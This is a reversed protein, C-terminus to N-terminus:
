RGEWGSCLPVWSINKICQGAICSEDSGCEDSARKILDEANAAGEAAIAAGIASAELSDSSGVASGSSGVAGSSTGCATATQAFLLAALPAIALILKM